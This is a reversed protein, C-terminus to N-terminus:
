LVLSLSIEHWVSSWRFKLSVSLGCSGVFEPHFFREATSLAREFGAFNWDASNNDAFPDDHAPAPIAANGIGIWACMGLDDGQALSAGGDPVMTQSLALQKNCNLWADHARPRDDLGAEAANDVSRVVSLSTRHVRHHLHQVVRPQIM